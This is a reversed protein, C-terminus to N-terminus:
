YPSPLGTVIFYCVWAEIGQEKLILDIMALNDDLNHKYDLGMRIAVDNWVKENIQGVGFDRTRSMFPGGSDSFQKFNSECELTDVMYPIHGYREIVIQKITLVEEIEVEIEEEAQDASYVTKAVPIFGSM